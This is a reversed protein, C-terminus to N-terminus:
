QGIQFGFNGNNNRLQIQVYNNQNQYNFFSQMVKWVEQQTPTLVENRKKENTLFLPHAM